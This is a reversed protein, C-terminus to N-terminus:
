YSMLKVDYELGEDTLKHPQAYHLKLQFTGGNVIVSKWHRVPLPTLLHKEDSLFFGVLSDQCHMLLEVMKTSPITISYNREPMDPEDKMGFPVRRYLKSSGDEMSAIFQVHDVDQKEIRITHSTKGENVILSDAGLLEWSGTVEEAVKQFTGDANFLYGTNTLYGASDSSWLGPLSFEPAAEAPQVASGSEVSKSGCASFLVPFLILLLTKNM